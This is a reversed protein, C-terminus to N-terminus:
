RTPFYKSHVPHHQRSLDRQPFIPTHPSHDHLLHVLLAPLTSFLRTIRGARVKIKTYDIVHLQLLMPPM